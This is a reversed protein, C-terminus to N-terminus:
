YQKLSRRKTTVIVAGDRAREGFRAIASDGKLVEISAISDPSLHDLPSVAGGDIVIQTGDVIYIPQPGNPSRLMVRGAAASDTRMSPRLESGPVRLRVGVAGRPTGMAVSQVPGISAVDGAGKMRIWLVTVSDPSVSGAGLKMVNVAEVRNADLTPVTTAGSPGATLPVGTAVRSRTMGAAPGYSAQAILGASDEVIWVMQASGTGQAVAPLRDRIVERVRDLSIGSDASPAASARIQTVPVRAVPRPGTPHPAECAVVVLATGLSALAVARAIPHRPRRSTMSRIRRELSTAPTPASLAAVFHHRQMGGRRAVDLLLAGYTVVDPHRQLVRADCDIEMAVRLRRYQWWLAPNWPMLAVAATAATLLQPDRAALHAREHALMLARQTANLELAWSPLVIRGGADALAAPGVNPAVLVPEGDVSEARWERVAARLRRQSLLLWGLALVSATLWVALLPRDLAEWRFQADTVIDGRVRARALLAALTAQDGTAPAGAAIAPAPAPPGAGLALLAPAVLSAFLAAVWTGRAARSALRLARDACAAAAGFCTALLVAYLMWPAIM